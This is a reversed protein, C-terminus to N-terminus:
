GRPTRTAALIVDICADLPLRTSDIMLHYLTRDCPDCRYFHRVYANRARDTHAQRREATERDIGELRMAQEVRRERPGDLRVHLAGPEAGLVIAAARGLIVAGDDAAHARIVEETTSRYGDDDIVVLSPSGYMAGIPALDRLARGVVTGDSQDHRQADAIPVALRDAVERPIARDLFPVGLREALAPGVESGGAGYSASLTVLPM